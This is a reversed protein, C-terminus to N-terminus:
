KAPKDTPFSKVKTAKIKGNAHTFQYQNSFFRPNKPTRLEVEIVEGPQLPKKWRQTDGGLANGAKDYWTESLTLLAISGTSANRIRFKTVVEDKVVNTNPGIYEITAEGRIPPVLRKQETQAFATLGLFGVMLFATVLRKM